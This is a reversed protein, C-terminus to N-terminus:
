YKLWKYLEKYSAKKGYMLIGVRYIKAAIWVVFLFTLILILLSILVQWWPVGFPIRMLMVIPSTLPIYSFISAIMGHPDNIVTAFGVYVGIMLPMLVPFMFQQTDTENDVASGIAAYISSYLLYGGLFFLVFWIFMSLLPLKLIEGVFFQAKTQAMVDMQAAPLQRGQKMTEIADMGLFYSSVFLIVALIVAWIFFQLLGALATGIIKGLMLQYPKVSSIIVEIIRNTKEEIVSRMVMAGYIIIFMMIVYGAGMGLGIKIGNIFKSSREGSFNALKIDVDVDSKELKVLDINLQKMKEHELREEIVKELKSILVM